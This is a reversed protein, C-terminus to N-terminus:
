SEVVDQDATAHSFRDRDSEHQQFTRLRETSLYFARIFVNLVEDHCLQDEYRDGCRVTFCGPKDETIEIKTMM